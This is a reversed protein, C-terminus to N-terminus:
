NDSKRGIGFYDIIGEKLSKRRPHIRKEKEEDVKTELPHSFKIRAEFLEDKM